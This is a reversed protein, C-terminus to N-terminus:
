SSLKPRGPKGTLLKKPRGRGRKMQSELETQTDDSESDEPDVPRNGENDDPNDNEAQDGSVPKLDINILFTFRSRGRAEGQHM